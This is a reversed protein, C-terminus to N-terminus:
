KTLELRILQQRSTVLEVLNNFRPSKALSALNPNDQLRWVQYQPNPLWGRAVLDALTSLALDKKGQLAYAEALTFQLMMTDSHELREIFAALLKSAKIKQNVQQLANIYTTIFFVRDDNLQAKPTFESFEADKEIELLAQKPEANLLYLAAKKWYYINSIGAKLELAEALRALNERNSLNMFSSEQVLQSLMLRLDPSPEKTWEKLLSFTFQNFLVLDRPQTLTLGGQEIHQHARILYGLNVLDNALDYHYNKQNPLRQLLHETMLFSQTFQHQERYIKALPILIEPENANKELALLWKDISPSERNIHSSVRAAIQYGLSHQPFQKITQKALNNLQSILAVEQKTQRNVSILDSQLRQAHQEISILCRYNLPNKDDLEAFDQRQCSEKSLEFSSAGLVMKTLQGNFSSDDIVQHPLGPVTLQLAKLPQNITEIPYWSLTLLRAQEPLPEIDSVLLPFSDQNDTIIVKTAPLHKVKQELWWRLREELDHEEQEIDKEDMHRSQHYLYVTDYELNPDISEQPATNFLWIIFGLIIFVCAPVWQSTFRSRTRSAHKIQDNPANISDSEPNGVDDEALSSDKNEPEIFGLDDFINQELVGSHVELDDVAEDALYETVNKKAVIDQSATDVNNDIISPEIVLRYGQRPVTEIYHSNHSSDDFIRRLKAIAQYLKNKNLALETPAQEIIQAASIVDPASDVLLLLVQTQVPTMTVTNGIQTLTLDSPSFEWDNLLYVPQSM